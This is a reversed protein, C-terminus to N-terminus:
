PWCKQSLLDRRLAELQALGMGAVLTSREASWEIGLLGCLDEVNTRLAQRAREESREARGEAERRAEAEQVARTEAEDARTEAEDARTEEEDSILLRQSTEADM